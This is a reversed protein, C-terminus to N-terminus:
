LPWLAPFLVGRAADGVFTVFGIIIMSANMLKPPQEDIKVSHKLNDDNDVSIISDRFSNEENSILFPQIKNDKEEM